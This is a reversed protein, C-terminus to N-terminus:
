LPNLLGFLYPITDQYPIITGHSINSFGSSLHDSDARSALATDRIRAIPGRRLHNRLERTM